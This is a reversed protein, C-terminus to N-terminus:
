NLDSENGKEKKDEKEEEKLAGKPQYFSFECGKKSCGSCAEESPTKCGKPAPTRVYLVFSIIFIALLLTLVVIALILYLM